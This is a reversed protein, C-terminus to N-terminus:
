FADAIDSQVHQRNRDVLHWALSKPLINLLRRRMRTKDNLNIWFSFDAKMCTISQLLLQLLCDFDMHSDNAVGFLWGLHLIYKVRAGKLSCSWLQHRWYWVIDRSLPGSLSTAHYFKTAPFGEIQMRSM